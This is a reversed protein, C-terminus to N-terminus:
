RAILVSMPSRSVLGDAVSGLLLRNLGRTNRAGCVLIDARWTSAAKLIDVVPIGRRVDMTVNWGGIRMRKAANDLEALQRKESRKSSLWM